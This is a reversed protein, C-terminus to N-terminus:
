MLSLMITCCFLVNLNLPLVDGLDFTHTLAPQSDEGRYVFASVVPSNETDIGVGTAPPGYEMVTDSPLSEKVM